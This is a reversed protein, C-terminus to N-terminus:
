ARRRDTDNAAAQADEQAVLANVMALIAQRSKPSLRRAKDPLRFEEAPAARAVEAAEMVTRIPVDLALAIGRITSDKITSVNYEGRAIAALTSMSVLGGSRAAARTRSINQRALEDLVLRQLDTGIM